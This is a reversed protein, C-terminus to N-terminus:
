GAPDAVGATRLAAQLRTAFREESFDALRRTGAGRLQLRLEADGLLRALAGAWVLPDHTGLVMAAAGVTEPLAGGAYCLV